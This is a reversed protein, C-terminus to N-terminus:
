IHQPFRKLVPPTKKEIPNEKLFLKILTDEEKPQNNSTSIKVNNIPSKFLPKYLESISKTANKIAFLNNLDVSFAYQVFLFLLLIILIVVKYSSKM